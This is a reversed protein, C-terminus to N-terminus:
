TGKKADGVASLIRESVWNTAFEYADSIESLKCPMTLTVAIKASNFDGLNITQGGQVTVHALEHLPIPAVPAAGPVPENAVVPAKKSVQTEVTAKPISAKVNPGSTLHDEYISKKAIGAVYGDATVGGNPLKFKIGM